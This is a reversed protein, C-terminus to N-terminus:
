GCLANLFPNSLVNKKISVSRHRYCAAPFHEEHLFTQSELSAWKQEKQNLVASFFFRFNNELSCFPKNRFLLLLLKEGLQVTHEDTLPTEAQSRPPNEGKVLLVPAFSRCLMRHHGMSNEAEACPM